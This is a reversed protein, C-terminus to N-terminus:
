CLLAARMCESINANKFVTYMTCPLHTLNNEYVNCIHLACTRGFITNKHKTDKQCETNKIGKIIELVLSQKATQIINFFFILVIVIMDQFMLCNVWAKITVQALMVINSGTTVDYHDTHKRFAGTGRQEDMLM